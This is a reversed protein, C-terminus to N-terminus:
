KTSSSSMRAQHGTHNQVIVVTTNQDWPTGVPPALTHPNTDTFNSSIFIFGKVFCFLYILALSTQGGGVWALLIGNSKNIKAAALLIHEKEEISVELM